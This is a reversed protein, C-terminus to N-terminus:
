LFDSHTLHHTALMDTFTSLKQDIYSEKQFSPRNKSFNKKSM